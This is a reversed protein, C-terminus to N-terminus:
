RGRLFGNPCVPHTGIRSLIKGRRHCFITTRPTPTTVFSTIPPAVMQLRIAVVSVAFKTRPSLNYFTCNPSYSTIMLSSLDEYGYHLTCTYSTAGYVGYWIAQLRSTKKSTML